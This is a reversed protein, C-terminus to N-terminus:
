IIDKKNYIRGNFRYAMAKGNKEEFDQIEKDMREKLEKNM